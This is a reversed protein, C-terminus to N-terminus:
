KVIFSLYFCLNGYSLFIRVGGYVNCIFCFISKLCYVKLFKTIIRVRNVVCVFDINTKVDISRVNTTNRGSEVRLKEEAASWERFPTECTKTPLILSFCVRALQFSIISILSSLIKSREIIMIECFINSDVRFVVAFVQPKQLCPVGM